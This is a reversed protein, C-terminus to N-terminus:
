GRRLITVIIKDQLAVDIRNTEFDSLVMVNRGDIKTPRVTLDHRKALAEAVPMELGLLRRADFPHPCRQEFGPCVYLPRSPRHFAVRNSKGCGVLVVAALITLAARRV